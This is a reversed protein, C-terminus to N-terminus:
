DLSSTHAQQPSGDKIDPAPCAPMGQHHLMTTQLHGRNVRRRGRDFHAAKAADPIRSREANIIQPLETATLEIAGHHEPIIKAQHARRGPSAPVQPGKVPDHRTAPLDDETAQVNKLRRIRVVPGVVAPIAPSASRGPLDPHPDPEASQDPRPKLVQHHRRTLHPLKDSARAPSQSPGHCAASWIPNADQLPFFRLPTQMCVM